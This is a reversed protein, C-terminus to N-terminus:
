EIESLINKYIVMFMWLFVFLVSNRCKYFLEEKFQCEKQITQMHSWFDNWKSSWRTIHLLYLHLGLYFFNCNLYDLIDKVLNNKSEKRKELLFRSKEGSDQPTMMKILEFSWMANVVLNVFFFLCIYGGSFWKLCLSSRKSSSECSSLLLDVGSLVKVFIQFPKLCWNFDIEKKPAISSTSKYSIAGIGILSQSAMKQEEKFQLKVVTGCYKLKRRSLSVLQATSNQRIFLCWSYKRHYYAV